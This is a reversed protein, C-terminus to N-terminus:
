SNHINALLRQLTDAPIDATDQHINGKLDDTTRPKNTFVRKLLGWPFFYPLTSDSPGTPWLKNTQKNQNEKKFFIVQDGFLSETEKTSATSTDCRGGNQQFYGPNKNTVQNVFANFVTLDRRFTYKTIQFIVSAAAAEKRGTGDSRVAELGM